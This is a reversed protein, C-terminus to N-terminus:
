PRWSAAPVGSLDPSFGLTGATSKVDFVLQGARKQGAPLGNAGQLPSTTCGTFGALDATTGDDALWQFEGGSFSFEGSTVEVLVDAIVFVGNAPPDWDAGCATKRTKLSRVTVRVTGDQVPVTAATGPKLGLQASASPSVAASPAQSAPVPAAPAAPKPDSSGCATVAGVLLVAFAPAWLRTYTIM